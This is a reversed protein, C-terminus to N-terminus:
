EQADPPCFSGEAATTTEGEDGIVYDFWGIAAEVGELFADKEAASEFEYRNRTQERTSEDEVFTVEVYFM